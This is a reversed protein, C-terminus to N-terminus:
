WKKLKSIEKKRRWLMKVVKNKTEIILHRKKEFCCNYKELCKKKNEVNNRNGQFEKKKIQKSKKKM